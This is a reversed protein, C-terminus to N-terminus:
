LLSFNKLSLYVHDGVQYRPALPRNENAYTQQYAQSLTIREYCFEVLDEMKKVLKSNSRPEAKESEPIFNMRSHYGFSAFFPSIGTTVNIHNNRCFEGSTLNKVFDNQYYYVYHRLYIELTKKAREIKGNTEPHYFTFLKHNIALRSCINKWTKDIFARGLYSM